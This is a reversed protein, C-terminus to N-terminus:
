LFASLSGEHCVFISVLQPNKGLVKKYSIPWNQAAALLGELSWWPCVLTNSCALWHHCFFRKSSGLTGSTASNPEHGQLSWSWAWPALTRDGLWHPAWDPWQCLGCWSSSTSSSQELLASAAWWTLALLLGVLTGVSSMDRGLSGKESSCATRGLCRLIKHQWCSVPGCSM